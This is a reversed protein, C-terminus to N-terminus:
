LSFYMVLPMIDLHGILFSSLLCLPIFLLVIFVLVAFLGDGAYTLNRMVLDLVPNGLQNIKKQFDLKDQFLLFLVGLFWTFRIINLYIFQM